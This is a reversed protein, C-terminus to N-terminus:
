EPLGMYITFCTDCVVSNRRHLTDTRGGGFTGIKVSAGCIAKQPTGDVLGQTIRSKRVYHNVSPETPQGEKPLTRTDPTDALITM